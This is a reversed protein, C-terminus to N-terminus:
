LAVEEFPHEALDALKRADDPTRAWMYYAARPISADGNSARFIPDGDPRLEATIQIGDSMVVQRPVRKTPLPYRADMRVQMQRETLGDPPMKENDLWGFGYAMRERKRAEAEPVMAQGNWQIVGDRVKWAMGALVAAEIARAFKM